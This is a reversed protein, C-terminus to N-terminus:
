VVYPIPIRDIGMIDALWLDLHCRYRRDKNGRRKRDRFQGFIGDIDHLVLGPAKSWTTAQRIQQKVWGLGPSTTAHILVSQNAWAVGRGIRFAQEVPEQNDLFFSGGALQRSLWRLHEGCIEIQGFSADGRWAAVCPGSPAISARTDLSAGSKSIELTGIGRWRMRNM